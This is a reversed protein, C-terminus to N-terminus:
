MTIELNIGSSVSKVVGMHLGPWTAQRHPRTGVALKNGAAFRAPTRSAWFHGGKFGQYYESSLFREIQGM